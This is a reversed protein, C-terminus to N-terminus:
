PLVKKIVLTLEMPPLPQLRRARYPQDARSRPEFVWDDSRVQRGHLWDFLLELPIQAGILKDILQEVSPMMWNREGEILVARGPEWQLVTEQNLLSSYLRLEGLRANGELEFNASLYQPPESETLLSLRGELRRWPPIPAPPALADTDTGARNSGSPGIASPTVQPPLSFRTACGTLWLISLALVLAQSPRM